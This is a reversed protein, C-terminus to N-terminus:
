ADNEPESGSEEDDIPKPRGEWLESIEGRCCGLILTTGLTGPVLYLLAPQGKQMITLAAITVCLGIFYGIVSPVFYGGHCFSRQGIIDHRRLYSILLGPLAVDGFGLMRYSGLADGISPVRLLMPVSEGTGGGKAVEVMVSKGHFVLPSLFVWFIDFFFMASLLTTAVKINPLRLTRQMWCLFAAGIIDQFIWGCAHNRLFFWAIVLGAAPIAAVMDAVSIAGLLPIMVKKRTLSPLLFALLASGMQTLCSFGGVCFAFIIFYIMYKMFFFLVLLMFSGMVCFCVATSEDVEVVEEGRKPAITSGIRLDSTAFFAGAVVLCTAMLIIIGESLNVISPSYLEFKVKVPENDPNAAYAMIASATSNEMGVVLVQVGIEEATRNSGMLLPQETDSAVVIASAGADQAM